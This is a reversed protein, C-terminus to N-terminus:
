PVGQPSTCAHRCGELLSGRGWLDPTLWVRLLGPDGKVAAHVGTETRARATELAGTQQAALALAARAVEAAPPTKGAAVKTLLDALNEGTATAALDELQARSEKGTEIAQAIGEPYEAGLQSLARVVQDAARQPETKNTLM